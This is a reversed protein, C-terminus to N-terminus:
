EEGEEESEDFDEPLYDFPNHGTSWGEGMIEEFKAIFEQDVTVMTIHEPEIKGYVESHKGLIEGFYIDGDYALLKEVNEMTEIFTASVDGMRGCDWYFEYIAKM